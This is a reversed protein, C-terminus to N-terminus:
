DSQVEGVEDEGELEFGMVIIGMELELEVAVRVGLRGGRRVPIDYVGVGERENERGDVGCIVVGVLLVM